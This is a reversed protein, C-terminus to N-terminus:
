LKKFLKIGDFLMYGGIGILLFVEIQYNDFDTSDMFLYVGFVVCAFGFISLVYADLKLQKKTLPIAKPEEAYTTKYSDSRAVLHAKVTLAIQEFNKIFIPALGIGIGFLLRGKLTPVTPIVHLHNNLEYIEAGRFTDGKVVIRERFGKNKYEFEYDSIETVLEQHLQKLDMM